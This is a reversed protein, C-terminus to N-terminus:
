GSVAVRESPEAAQRLLNRAISAQAGVSRLFWVGNVRFWRVWADAATNKSKKM